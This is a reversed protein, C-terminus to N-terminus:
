DGTKILNFDPIIKSEIKEKKVSGDEYYEIERSGQGIIFDRKAFVCGSLTLSLILLTILIRM